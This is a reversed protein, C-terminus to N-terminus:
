KFTEWGADPAFRDGFKQALARLASVVAEVGRTRAYNLPGGRFPAYGTGFIMAGDVMDPDDVIGERLAAICVNSIPLVLRDIMEDSVKPGTEPLPAKEAKGDRWTYFGKGTKRGLEGKAVKERLWAPTPSLADGFKSRLMDGVDLCIDLGVQDALEIPGMPMGFEVAAADILRQDTKEDLMMMAELMYPTLARNVLFGPSSKVPLPLRDIAGVFALAEKLMAADTGDHSVVEVLQLRSVPNFFHLGLLREPRALTTRLDQLPISSTNTALIAGQKTKPELGAYVKQKLELKEPVAEIILDANRGGEGDMDPILRDLADRQDIKRRMIKGFLDAARKMAGAIPEAKMDALTVRMDQNACWAAIDGGMAGAGIVHVHQVKNGSGAAKKMQERLFFVRILNQATPTVMLNAFSAKEANLMGSRNGAHKEWLDILASPAPYHKRPAAKEAESRMRSALLGRAPAFNLIATLVGPKARKLRGFVADKVANRVHREQTVADVLGLSKARRADITKGTLMLTMAQMPNVLETFRVTGGLGPHLGLMVEPFGFRADDIAIRMQCALAVELGGGLCFGHIVAVSPVRLAELRDIVAHARGIETEVARPDNAGRFENVDAGAIFGSKKASRVVLGTPRQNELAAVIADLEELLDASLTNASTGARDFLLWAIGDEDRTLKFNKYPSDAAPKPGLELVRDALVDMIRSDM